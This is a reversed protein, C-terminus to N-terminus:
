SKRPIGKFLRRHITPKPNHDPTAGNGYSEESSHEESTDHTMSSGKGAEEQDEDEGMFEELNFIGELGEESITRLLKRGKKTGLFFVLAAGVVLGILFGHSFSSGKNRNETNSVM